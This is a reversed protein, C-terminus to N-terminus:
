REAVALRIGFAVLIAGMTADFARRVRPRALLRGARAIVAAYGSLWVVTMTVFVLGLSAMATFTPSGPAVFQPLLSSFFIAMKPNGLNSIVGQRFASAPRLSPEGDSATRPGTPHAAARPGIALWLTSAGLYVLYAAGILRIAAFVPESAVLLATLGLSAALTWGGQGIGVGLATAIGARRGGLVTNRITLATDQGPTIIIVVSIALFAAFSGDVTSV